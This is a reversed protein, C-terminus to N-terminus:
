QTNSHSYNPYRYFDFSFIEIKLSECRSIFVSRNYSLYFSTISSSFLFIFFSLFCLFLFLYRFFSLSCFLLTIPFHSLFFNHFFSPFRRQEQVIICIDTKPELRTLAVDLRRHRRTTSSIQYRVLGWETTRHMGRGSKSARLVL